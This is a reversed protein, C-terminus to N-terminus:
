SDELHRFSICHYTLQSSLEEHLNLKQHNCWPQEKVLLFFIRGGFKRFFSFSLILDDTKGFIHNSKNPRSGHGNISIQRKFAIDNDSIGTM